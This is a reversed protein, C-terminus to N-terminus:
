ANKNQQRRALYCNFQKCISTLAFFNIKDYFHQPAPEWTCTCVLSRTQINEDLEAYIHILSDFFPRNSVLQPERLRPDIRETGALYEDPWGIRMWFLGIKDIGDELSLQNRHEVARRSGQCGGSDSCEIEITEMKWEGLTRRQADDHWRRRTHDRGRGFYPKYVAGLILFIRESVGALSSWVMKFKKRSNLPSEHANLKNLSERAGAKIGRSFELLLFDSSPCFRESSDRQNM